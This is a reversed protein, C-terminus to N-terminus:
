HLPHVVESGISYHVTVDLRAVYHPLNPLVSLGNILQSVKSSCSFQFIVLLKHGDVSSLLIQYPVLGVLLFMDSSSFDFFSLSAELM